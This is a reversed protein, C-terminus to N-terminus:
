RSPFFLRPSIHKRKRGRKREKQFGREKKERKLDLPPTSLNLNPLCTSTRKERRGEGERFGPRRTKLFLTSSSITSSTEEGGRGGGRGKKEQKKSRKLSSVHLDPPPKFGKKGGRKKKKEGRRKKPIGVVRRSPPFLSLSSGRLHRKQRQCELSAM